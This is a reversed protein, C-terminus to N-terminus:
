TRRRLMGNLGEDKLRVLPDHGDAVASAWEVWESLNPDGRSGVASIATLFRRIREADEWALALDRLEGRRRREEEQVRRRAEREEAERAWQLRRQAWEKELAIQAEGAAEVGLVVEGLKEELRARKGDSWTKRVPVSELGHLRITLKGSPRFDYRRYSAWGSKEERAQEEETPEYDSQLLAEKLSFAIQQDGVAVSCQSRFGKPATVTLGRAEFAKILADLLLLARPVAGPAIAVRLTGGGSTTVLDHNDPRARRLAARTARVLRHPERLEKGVIVRPATVNNRPEVNGVPQIEVVESIDGALQPRDTSDRRSAARAWYGQPPRPISHRDCLKALGVDSLGVRAAAKQLPASWVLDYLESRRVRHSSGNM